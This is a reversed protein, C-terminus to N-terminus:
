RRDRQFRTVAPVLPESPTVIPGANQKRLFLSNLWYAFLPFHRQEGISVRRLAYCNVGSHNVGSTTTVASRYGCSNLTTESIGACDSPQGFPFAFDPVSRGLGRELIERSDRLERTQSERDVQSLVPHSVTHSGIAVGRGQMIRLQAWTLMRGELERESVPVRRLFDSCFDRRVSDPQSRLWRIIRETAVLPAMAGDLRFEITSDLEVTLTAAKHNSVALFLRDYWPAVGTEVAEAIAFITAPVQYKLLTPFAHVFLDSYGDDFTVAVAPLSSTPHKLEVLLNRLSLLRYHQRLYRMQTEFVSPELRSYLPVGEVGVRHYCLIAFRPEAILPRVLTAGSPLQYSRTFRRTVALVGTRYLGSALFERGSIMANDGQELKSKASL